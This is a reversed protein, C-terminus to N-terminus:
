RTLRLCVRMKRSRMGMKSVSHNRCKGSQQYYILRRLVMKGYIILPKSSRSHSTDQGSKQEEEAAQAELKDMVETVARIVIALDGEEYRPKPKGLIRRAVARASQRIVLTIWDNFEADRKEKEAPTEFVEPKFVPRPEVDTYKNAAYMRYKLPVNKDCVVKELLDWGGTVEKTFYETNEYQRAVTKLEETFDKGGPIKNKAGLPRGGKPNRLGGRPM